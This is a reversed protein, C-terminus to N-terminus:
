PRSVPNDVAIELAAQLPLPTIHAFPRADPDVVYDFQDVPSINASTFPTM